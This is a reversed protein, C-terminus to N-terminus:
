TLTEMSPPQPPRRQFPHAGQNSPAACKEFTRGKVSNFGANRNLHNCLQSKNLGLVRACDAQSVFIEGTEICKVHTLVSGYFQGRQNCLPTGQEKFLKYRHNICENADESAHLVTVTVQANNETMKVWETNNRADPANYVDRIQCIGLFVVAGGMAHSYVCFATQMQDRTLTVQM